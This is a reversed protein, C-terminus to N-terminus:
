SIKGTHLNFVPLRRASRASRAKLIVFCTWFLSGVNNVLVRLQLLLTDCHPWSTVFHVIGMRGFM